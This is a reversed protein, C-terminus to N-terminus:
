SKENCFDEQASKRQLDPQLQNAAIEVVLDKITWPRDDADRISFRKPHLIQVNTM